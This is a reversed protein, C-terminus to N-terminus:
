FSMVPRPISGRDFCGCHKISVVIRDLGSKCPSITYFFGALQFRGIKMESRFIINM